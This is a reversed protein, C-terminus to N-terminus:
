TAKFPFKDYVFVVVDWVFTLLYFGLVAAGCLGLTAVPFVGNLSGIFGGVGANNTLWAPMEWAPFLAFVGNVFGVLLKVIADLLM